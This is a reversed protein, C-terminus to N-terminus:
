SESTVPARRTSPRRRPRTVARTVEDATFWSGAVFRMVPGFSRAAPAGLFHLKPISSEMGRRLVPYGDVCAVSTALDRDLFSYKRIDIQYGTAFLLHDAKRETGDSLQVRLGHGNPAAHMITTGTTIPVDSLRPRLWSAGAPRIARRAIPDQLNRPFRRFLNPTAVLRSIGAPGITAPSVLLPNLPGLVKDGHKLWHVQPNRGVVEVNAGQEHMIAACELASQGSGIVLVNQGSFVDLQRHDAAHSTTGEPLSKMLSPRRPFPEIGAAVLVRNAMLQQEDDFTLLFRDGRRELRVVKRRDVDPAVQRQVWMAYEMFTDLSLHYDVEQGTAATYGDMSLPGQLDGISSAMRPSRMWMGEPMTQWFSMPEGIVRVEAGARRLHAATGLGHPGAGIVAIDTQDM